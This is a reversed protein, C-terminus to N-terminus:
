TATSRLAPGLAPCPPIPGALSWMTKITSMILDYRRAIATGDWQTEARLMDTLYFPSATGEPFLVTKKAEFERQSVRKNQAETALVLNGICQAARVRHPQRPFLRAWEGGKVNGKPCVHEVTLRDPGTNAPDVLPQYYALPQRSIAIDARLLFLKATPPDVLHLRTAVNRLIQKQDDASFTLLQDPRTLEHSTDLLRRLVPAYHRRRADRGCGLAMLGHAYRDLSKLFLGLAQPNGDLRQLALMALPVWDDDGHQELWRLVQIWEEADHAVAAAIEAGKVQLYAEAMPAFVEGVFRRPGGRKQVARKLGDIIGRRPWGDIVALHSFFTKGKSRTREAEERYKDMEDIIPEYRERQAQDLPGLIEGRFIDEVTLRKGRDNITLFIQYAYDFDDSSVVLVRVSRRAFGLLRRRRDPSLERLMKGRIARRVDEVQRRTISTGLEEAPRARRSAGPNQIASKFYNDDSARLSLHCSQEKGEQLPTRAILRHLDESTTDPELDRLVAFIIALTILRQQGDIVDVCQIPGAETGSETTRTNVFLMTGLFYPIERGARVEDDVAAEIDEILQAAEDKTWVYDRQFAPISFAYRGSLLDEIAMDVSQLQTTM